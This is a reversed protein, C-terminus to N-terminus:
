LKGAAVRALGQLVLDPEYICAHALLPKVEPANGGTLVCTLEMNMAESVDSIVRDIVAVAAYLTGGFVAAGTDRALLSVKSMANESSRVGKTGSALSNRMMQIGPVILGGLHEGQGSLVDITIATGCDVICAAVEIRQRVAILAAWRDAGLRDPHM